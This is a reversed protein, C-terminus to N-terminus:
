LLGCRGARDLTVQFVRATAADIMMGGLSAAGLGEAEADAVARM